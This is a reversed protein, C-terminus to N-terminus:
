LRRGGEKKAKDQAHKGSVNGDGWLSYGAWWFPSAFPRAPEKGEERLEREEEELEEIREALLLTWLADDLIFWDSINDARETFMCIHMANCQM